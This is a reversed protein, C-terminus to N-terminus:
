IAPQLGTGLRLNLKTKDYNVVYRGRLWNYMRIKLQMGSNSLLFEPPLYAEVYAMQKEQDEFDGIEYEISWKAFQKSTVSGIIDEFHKLSFGTGSTIIKAYTNNLTFYKIIPRLVPRPLVGDSDSFANMYQKAAKQAEDLVYLFGSKNDFASGLIDEPTHELNLQELDDFPVKRFYASILATFPDMGKAIQPPFLQFMLWHLKVDDPLCGHNLDKAVEIFKRFVFRRALMVKTLNTLAINENIKNADLVSSPKSSSDKFIDQNWNPSFSMLDISLELDQCGIGDPGQSIVFYFGWCQCLAEFLM